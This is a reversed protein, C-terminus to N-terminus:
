LNMRWLDMRGVELLRESPLIVFRLESPWLDLTLFLPWFGFLRPSSCWLEFMPSSCWLEFRPSSCWLKLRSPFPRIRVSSWDIGISSSSCSESRSIMSKTLELELLDGISWSDNVFFGVLWSDDLPSLGSCSDVVFQGDTLVDTSWTDTVLVM